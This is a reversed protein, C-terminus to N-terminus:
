QAMEGQGADPMQSLTQGPLLQLRKIEAGELAELRRIEDEPLETFLRLFRGVDRDETNRWYQWYDYASLRQENLWIAGEATKGM